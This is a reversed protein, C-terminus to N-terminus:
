LLETKIKYKETVVGAPKSVIIRTKRGRVLREMTFGNWHAPLKPDVVLKGHEVRVGLLRETICKFLWASSGSYWTWAGKGEHMSEPGEINGPTVYPEGKYKDADKMSLLPPCLRAVTDYVKQTNGALAQAWIAWTAAHTYVGGNERIGPAYRTLYGINKDVVSYAPTFLLVGYDRYLRKETVALLKKAQAGDVVGSIVAWTQPNLHIKGQKCSDLGLVEGSDKTALM